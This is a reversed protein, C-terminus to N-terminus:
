AARSVGRSLTAPMRNLRELDNPIVFTNKSVRIRYSSRPVQGVLRAEIAARWEVIAEM